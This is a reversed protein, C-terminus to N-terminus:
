SLKQNQFLSPSPTSLRPVKRKQKKKGKEREKKTHEVKKMGNLIVFLHTQLSLVKDVHRVSVKQILLM